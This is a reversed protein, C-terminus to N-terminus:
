YGKPNLLYEDMIEDDECEPECLLDMIMDLRGAPSEDAQLPLDLLERATDVQEKETKGLLGKYKPKM